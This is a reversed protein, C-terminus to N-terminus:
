RGGGGPGGVVAVVTVMENGLFGSGVMGTTLTDVLTTSTGLKDAERLPTRFCFTLLFM